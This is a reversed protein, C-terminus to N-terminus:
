EWFMGQASQNSKHVVSTKREVQRGYPDTKTEDESVYVLNVAPNPLGQGGDHVATLLANHQQRRQDVFHVTDGIQM